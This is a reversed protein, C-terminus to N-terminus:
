RSPAQRPSPPSDRRDQTQSARACRRCQLAAAALSGCAMVFNGGFRDISRGVKPAVLGGTLLGISFGGMAFSLTWGREAAILPMTLVPPYFMTGWTIIQTAGLVPVARWPSQLLTNLQLAM